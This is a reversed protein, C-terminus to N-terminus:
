RNIRRGKDCGHTQITIDEAQPEVVREGPAPWASADVVCGILCSHGVTYQHM